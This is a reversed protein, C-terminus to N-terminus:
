TCVVVLPVAFPLCRVRVKITIKRYMDTAIDRLMYPRSQSLREGSLAENLTIGSRREGLLRFEVAVRGGPRHYM